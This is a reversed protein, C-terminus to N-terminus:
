NLEGEGAELFGDVEDCLRDLAVELGENRKVDDLAMGILELMSRAGFYFAVQILGRTAPTVEDVVAPLVTEEYERWREAVAVQGRGRADMGM